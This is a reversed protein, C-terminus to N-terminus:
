LEKLNGNKQYNIFRYIEVKSNNLNDKRLLISDMDRYIFVEYVSSTSRLIFSLM